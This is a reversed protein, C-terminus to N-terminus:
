RKRRKKPKDKHAQINLAHEELYAKIAPLCVKKIIDDFDEDMVKACIRLDEWVGFALKLQVPKFRKSTPRNENKDILNKLWDVTHPKEGKPLCAKLYERRDEYPSAVAHHSFTLAAMRDKAPYVSAVHAINKVTQYALGLEAAVDRYFNPIKVAKYAKEGDADTTKALTMYGPIDGIFEEADFQTQGEVLWDGLAWNTSHYAAVIKRGQELWKGYAAEDFAPATSESPGPFDSAGFDTSIPTEFTTGM